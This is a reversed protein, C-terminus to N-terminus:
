IFTYIISQNKMNASLVIYLSSEHKKDATGIEEVAATVTKIQKLKQAIEQADYTGLPYMKQGTSAPNSMNQPNM